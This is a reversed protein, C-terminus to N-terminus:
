QARSGFIHGCAFGAVLWKVKFNGMLYKYMNAVLM